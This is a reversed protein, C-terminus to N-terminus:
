TFHSVPVYTDTTDPVQIMDLDARNVEEGGAQLEMGKM